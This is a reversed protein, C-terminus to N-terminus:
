STSKAVARMIVSSLRGDNVVEDSLLLVVLLLLMRTSASIQWDTGILFITTMMLLRSLCIPRRVADDFANPSDPCRTTRSSASLQQDHHDTTTSAGEISHPRCQVTCKYAAFSLGRRSVTVCLRWKACCPRVVTQLSTVDVARQVHPRSMEDIYPAHLWWRDLTILV